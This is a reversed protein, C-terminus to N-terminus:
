EKRPIFKTELEKSQTLVKKKGKRHSKEIEKSDKKRKLEGNKIGSIRNPWIKWMLSM